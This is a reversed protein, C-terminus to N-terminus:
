VSGDCVLQETVASLELAWGSDMVAHAASLAGCAEAAAIRAAARALRAHASAECEAWTWCCGAGDGCYEHFQNMDGHQLLSFPRTCFLGVMWSFGSRSGVFVDANCFHWFAPLAAMEGHVFLEILAAAGRAAVAARFFPLAHEGDSFVHFHIPAAVGAARLAPLVIGDTIIGLVNEATPSIDGVRFHVAVNVARPDYILKPRAGNGKRNAVAAAASFKWGLVARTEPSTDFPTEDGRLIFLVGCGPHAAIAPAFIALAAANPVGWTGLRPLLVEKLLSSRRRLEALELGNEGWTLGLFADWGAYSGHEKGGVDLSSHILTLNFLRAVWLGMSWERVRHGVGANTDQTALVFRPCSREVLAHRFLLPARDTACTMVLAAGANRLFAGSFEARACTPSPAAGAVRMPHLALMSAHVALALTIALIPWPLRLVRSFTITAGIRAHKFM